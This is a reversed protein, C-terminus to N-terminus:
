KKDWSIVEYKINYNKDSMIKDVVVNIKSEIKYKGSISEIKIPIKIYAGEKLIEYKTSTEEKIFSRDYERDDSISIKSKFYRGEKGTCELEDDVYLYLKNDPALNPDLKSLENQIYEKLLELELSITSIRNSFINFLDETLYNGYIKKMDAQNLINFDKVDKIRKINEISKNLENIYIRLNQISHPNGIFNQINNNIDLLKNKIDRIYNHAEKDTSSIKFNNNMDRVCLDMNIICRGIIYKINIVPNQNGFMINSLYEKAILIEERVLRKEHNNSGLNPSNLLTEILKKIEVLDPNKSEIKQLINNISDEINGSNNNIYKAQLLYQKVIELPLRDIKNEIVSGDLRITKLYESLGIEVGSEALYKEGIYTETSKNLKIQNSIQSYIVGIFITILVLAFIALTLTSGKNNKLKKCM